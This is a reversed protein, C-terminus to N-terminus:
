DKGWNEQGFIYTYGIYIYVTYSVWFFRCCKKLLSHQKFVQNKCKASGFLKTVNLSAIIMFLDNM